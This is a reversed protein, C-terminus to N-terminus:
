VAFLDIRPSNVVLNELILTSSFHNLLQDYNEKYPLLKDNVTIRKTKIVEVPIIYREIVDNSIVAQLMVYNSFGLDQSKEKTITAVFSRDQNRRITKVEIFLGNSLMLDGYGYHTFVSDLGLKEKIIFRCLIEGFYGLRYRDLLMLNQFM